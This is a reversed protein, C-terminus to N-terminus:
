FFFYSLPALFENGPKMDRWFLFGMVKETAPPGGHVFGVCPQFGEFCQSGSWLKIICISLHHKPFFDIQLRRFCLLTIVRRAGARRASFPSLFENVRPRSCRANFRAGGRVDACIAITDTQANNSNNRIFVFLMEQAVRLWRRM